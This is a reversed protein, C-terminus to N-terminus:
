GSTSPCALDVRERLLNGIYAELRMPSFPKFQYDDPHCSAVRYLMNQESPTALIVVFQPRLDPEEKLMALVGDCGGWPLSTSLLLVDPRFQRLLNVCALGDAAMRVVFGLAVLHERYVESLAPDADAILIRNAM